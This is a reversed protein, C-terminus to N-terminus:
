QAPQEPQEDAEFDEGPYGERADDIRSRSRVEHEISMEINAAMYPPANERGGELQLEVAQIAEEIGAAIKRGVSTETLLAYDRLASAYDQQQLELIVTAYLLKLYKGRKLWRGQNIMALRFCRLQEVQDGRESALRGETIYSYALEFANLASNDRIEDIRVKADDLKGGNILAHIKANRAFFRRSLRLHRYSYVFYLIANAKREEASEFRWNGVAALAAAEFADSGSSDDITAAAVTGDSNVAYSLVVWGERSRKRESIPYKPEPQEIFRQNANQPEARAQADAPLAALLVLIWGIRWYSM